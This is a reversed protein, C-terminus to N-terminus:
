YNISKKAIFHLLGCGNLDEYNNSNYNILYEYLVETDTSKDFNIKKSM